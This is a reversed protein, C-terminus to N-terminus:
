GRWLDNEKRHWAITRRIGDSLSCRPSLGLEQRVRAVSPVYRAPLVGVQAQQQVL